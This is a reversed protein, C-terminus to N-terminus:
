IVGALVLGLLVSTVLVLLAALAIGISVKKAKPPAANQSPAILKAKRLGNIIPKYLIIVLSANMCYKVLNFPLFTPILMGVVIEREVGMYIPTILYNWLVMVGTVLVVGIALGGIAGKLTYRKSYIYAVPCAFVLTSLVNMLLGWLGTESVTVMEILSVVVSVAAVSVPGFILGGIAIIVDKLDFTLFGAVPFFAFLQKSLFMVVYAIACLLANMTIKKADFRRKLGQRPQIAQTKTSM